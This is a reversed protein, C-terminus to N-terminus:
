LNPSILLAAMVPWDAIMLAWLTFTRRWQGWSQRSEVWRLQITFTFVFVVWAIFNILPIGLVRTPYRLGGPFCGGFLDAIPGEPTTMWVLNDFNYPTVVGEGITHVGPSYPVWIWWNYITALPDLVLDIMLALTADCLALVALTALLNGRFLTRRAPPNTGQAPIGGEAPAGFVIGDTVHMIVYVLAVWSAPNAVPTAWVYFEFGPYVYAGSLVGTSEAMATLAFGAVFERLTRRWGHTSLSHVLCVVFLLLLNTEFVGKVLRAPDIGLEMFLDAV